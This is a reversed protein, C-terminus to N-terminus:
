SIGGMKSFGLFITGILFLDSWGMGEYGLENLDM